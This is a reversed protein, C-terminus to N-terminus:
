VDGIHVLSCLGLDEHLNLNWYKLCTENVIPNMLLNQIIEITIWLNHFQEDIQLDIGIRQLLTKNIIIEKKRIRCYSM